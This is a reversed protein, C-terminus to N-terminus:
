YRVMQGRVTVHEELSEVILPERLRGVEDAAGGGALRDDDVGVAVDFGVERRGGGLLEADRVHRLRVDMGVVDRARALERVGGARREVEAGLAAGVPLVAEGRLVLRRQDAVTVHEPDAVDPELDHM